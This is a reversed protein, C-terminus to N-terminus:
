LGLSHWAVNLLRASSLISFPFLTLPLHEECGLFSYHNLHGISLNGFTVVCLFWFFRTSGDAISGVYSARKRTRPSWKEKDELSAQRSGGKKKKEENEKLAEEIKWPDERRRTQGPRWHREAGSRHWRPRRARWQYTTKEEEEDEKSVKEGNKKDGADGGVSTCAASALRHAIKLAGLLRIFACEGHIWIGPSRESRGGM